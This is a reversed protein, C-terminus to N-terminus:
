KKKIRSGADAIASKLRADDVVALAEDRIKEAEAKHGTAVLIEILECNRGVFGGKIQRIRMESLDPPSWSNTRGRARIAEAVRRMSDNNIEQFRKQMDLEMNMRGRLSDFKGQADGGMQDYCYQYEGKSVLLSEVIFYCQQTLAQDKARIQKFLEYTSDEQQLADNIVKVELFLDFYGRGESFEHVDNDRIEILSKKAEPFRRGLEVWDNLLVVLQNNYKKKNYFELCSKLAAEYEGDAISQHVDTQARAAINIAAEPPLKGPKLQPLGTAPDIVQARVAQVFVIGALLAAASKIVIALKKTNM